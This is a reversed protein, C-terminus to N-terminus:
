SKGYKKLKSRSCSKTRSSKSRSCSKTRSSKSKSRSRVKNKTRSSKHKGGNKVNDIMALMDYALKKQNALVAASNLSAKNFKKNSINIYKSINEDSYGLIKGVLYTICVYKDSDRSLWYDKYEEIKCEHIDMKPIEPGVIWCKETLVNIFKHQTTDYYITDGMPQDFNSLFLARNKHSLNYYISLPHHANELHVVGIKGFSIANNLLVRLSQDISEMMSSSEIAMPKRGELTAKIDISPTGTISTDVFNEDESM